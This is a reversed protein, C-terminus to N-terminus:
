RGAMNLFLRQQEVLGSTPKPARPPERYSAPGLLRAIAAYADATRLEDRRLRDLEPGARQWTKVWRRGQALQEPSWSALGSRREDM